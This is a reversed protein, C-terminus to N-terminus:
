TVHDVAMLCLPPCNLLEQMWHVNVTVFAYVFLMGVYLIDTM